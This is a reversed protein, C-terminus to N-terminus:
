SATGELEEDLVEEMEEDVVNAETSHPDHDQSANKGRRVKSLFQVSRAVVETVWRDSGNQTSYKRVQISGNVSVLTGKDTHEATVEAAKGWIVIPIFDVDQQGKKALPRDVAISVTTIATGSPTYRLEPKKTWRGVLNVQNM